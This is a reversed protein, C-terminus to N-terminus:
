FLSFVRIVDNKINNTLSNRAYDSTLKNSLDNVCAIFVIFVCFM